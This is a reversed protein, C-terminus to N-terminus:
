RVNKVRSKGGGQELAKSRMETDFLDAPNSKFNSKSYNKGEM